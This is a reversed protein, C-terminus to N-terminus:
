SGGNFLQSNEKSYDLNKFEKLLRNAEEAMEQYGEKLLNRLAKSQKRERRKM